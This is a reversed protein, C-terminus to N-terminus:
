LSRQHAAFKRPHVRIPKTTALRQKVYNKSAPFLGSARLWEESLLKNLEWPQAASAGDPVHSASCPIPLITESTTATAVTKGRSRQARHPLECKIKNVHEM